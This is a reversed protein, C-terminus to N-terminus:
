EKQWDYPLNVGLGGYLRQSRNCLSCFYDRLYATLLHAYDNSIQLREGVSDDVISVNATWKELKNKRQQHFQSLYDSKAVASRLQESNQVWALLGAAHVLCNCIQFAILLQKHMPIADVDIGNDTFFRFIRAIGLGPIQNLNITSRGELERCLLLCYSEFLSVCNLLNGTAILAPFIQFLKRGEFYWRIARLRKAEEDRKPNGTIPFYKGLKQLELETESELLKPAKWVFDGLDSFDQYAQEALSKFADDSKAM